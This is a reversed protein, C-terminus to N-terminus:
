KKFSMVAGAPTTVVVSLVSGLDAHTLSVSAGGQVAVPGATDYFTPFGRADYRIAGRHDGGTECFSCSRNVVITALPPQLTTGLGTSPGFTVGRPLDLTGLIESQGTLPQAVPDYAAFTSGLAGVFLDFARDQYVIVRGASDSTAQDPFFMVVVDDGSALATQRALHLLAQLEGSASDYNARPRLRQLGTYALTTLVAIIGLVVAMEILTFGRTRRM